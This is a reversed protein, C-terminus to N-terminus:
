KKNKGSTDVKFFASDDESYIKTRSESTKTSSNIKSTKLNSNENAAPTIQNLIKIRKNENLKPKEKRIKPKQPKHKKSRPHPEVSSRVKKDESSKKKILSPDKSTSKSAINPLLDLKDDDEKEESSRIKFLIYSIVITSVALIAFIVLATYIIPVLEM